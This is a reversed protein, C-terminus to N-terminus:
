QITINEPTLQEFYSLNSDKFKKYVIDDSFFPTNKLSLLVDDVEVSSLAAITKLRSGLLSLKVSFFRLLAKSLYSALLFRYKYLFPYKGYGFFIEDGGTGTLAVSFYQKALTSMQEISFATLGYNPEGFIKNLHEMNYDNNYNKSDVVIHNMGLFSAIKAAGDSEDHILNKDYKVTFAVIDDKGLEKSLIAAILSSDIGASLFVGVSVDSITMNNVSKILIDSIDDLQRESLKKVRGNGIKQEPYNLYKCEKVKKGKEILLMSAPSCRFLGQFATNPSAVYGLTLFEVSMKSDTRISLNLLKILPEPESSFFFGDDSSHWYLPKEGFYDVALLLREKDYFAFAFMGDIHKLADSEKKYLVESLVETDGTTVFKSGDEELKKKLSLYNYIEGNFVLQSNNNNFPQNAKSSTDLISLRTHGLFIGKEKDHWYGRNDPGRHSLQNTSHVGQSIDRDNLKRNLYFGFIGCM